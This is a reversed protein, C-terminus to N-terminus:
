SAESADRDWASISMPSGEEHEQWTEGLEFFEFEDELLTEGHRPVVACCSGWCSAPSGHFLQTRESDGDRWGKGQMFDARDSWYADSGKSVGVVADASEFAAAVCGLGASMRYAPEPIATVVIRIWM